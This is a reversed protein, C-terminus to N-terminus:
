ASRIVYKIKYEAIVDNFTADGSDTLTVLLIHAGTIAATVTSSVHFGFGLDGDTKAMAGSALETGTSDIFQYTGTETASWAEGSTKYLVKSFSESQYETIKETYRAYAM